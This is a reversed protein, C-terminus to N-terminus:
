DVTDIAGARGAERGVVLDLAECSRTPRERGTGFM